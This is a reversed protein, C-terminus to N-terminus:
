IAILQQSMEIWNRDIRLSKSSRLQKKLIIIEGQNVPLGKTLNMSLLAIIQNKLSEKTLNSVAETQLYDEQKKMRDRRNTQKARYSQDISSIAMMRTSRRDILFARDKPPVKKLTKVTM